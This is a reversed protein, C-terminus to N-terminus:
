APRLTNQIAHMLGDRTYPKAICMKVIPPEESLLTEDPSFGTVMIIPMNSRRRKLERALQSGTMGPMLHDTIVLDFSEPASEFLELAQRGGSAAAVTYGSKLLLQRGIELVGVEDDVLLIREGNGQLVDQIPRVSDLSERHVLPLYVDFVTGEGPVSRVLVVGQMASVIGHVTALGLGTGEGVEKTSFFPDFIRERVGAPMGPGDDAVQLWLFEGVHLSPEVEVDQQSILRDQLRVRITGGQQEMAQYANACLNMIIQHIQTPDAEVAGSQEDIEQVISITSPISERLMKLAEKLVPVVKIPRREFKMQRSFTLIQQVLDKARNGAALITEVQDHAKSSLPLDDRLLEAYGNIIALINNFDHAIGGALTGIAKLKQDQNLLVEFRKREDDIRKRYSIDVVVNLYCPAENVEIRESYLLIDVQRGGRGELQVEIGKLSGDRYLRGYIVRLDQSRILKAARVSKSVLDERRYGVLALFGANVDQIRGKASTILMPAPSCEFAKSFRESLERIEMEAKKRETIDRFICLIQGDGIYKAAAAVTIEEGSKTLLHQEGRMSMGNRIQQLHELVRSREDGTVYELPMFGWLEQADFGVMELAAPNADVICNHRDLIVIGDLAQQYLNRYKSESEMLAQEALRREGLEHSLERTRSAVRYKLTLSWAIMLVILVSLPGAVWLSYRLIDERSPQLKDYVGFWEQYIEDYRGTAKVIALGENLLGLLEADGERVAFSYRSTRVPYNLSVLNDLRYKSIIYLGQLRPCIVADHRGAALHRLAKIPCEVAVLRMGMDDALLQEHIYDGQQVMVAKGKLQDLSLLTMGTRVFVAYSVVLHPTAFDVLAEREPTYYMGSLMDIEGDELQRRVVSWPGLAMELDLGMVEAVARALDVNFGRPRDIQMGSPRGSRELFEYPPYNRDGRVRIEAAAAYGYVLLLGGFLLCIVRRM